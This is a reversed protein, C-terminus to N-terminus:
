AANKHVFGKFITLFIIKIDLWLSWNDIYYLDCEIRKQLDTDGRWGNIQAWGTIGAKVMHKQMYGPIEDKFQEVFMTREPRPGVISMDGKLVNIFQPLEDLSTARIFQGFRTTTKSKAGGWVVGYEENNVPMSRFKLMMFTKNNWSVREQRYFVPGPSTMKVGISIFLLIPSIMLLIIGALVKDEMGKVLRNFGNIPSMCVNIVPMGAVDSVSHNILRFGHMDPIYRITQTVNRLSHLVQQVVLEDSLSMAIWVQDVNLGNEILYSEIENFDGLLQAGSIPSDGFSGVVKYGTWPATNVRKVTSEATVGDGIIIVHFLNRGKARLYNLTIRVSFRIVLLIILGGVFWGVFFDNLMILSSDAFYYVVGLITQNLAWCYAAISLEKMKSEGRWPRYLGLTPYLWMAIVLSLALTLVLGKHPATDGLFYHFSLMFSAIIALLDSTRHLIVVLFHAEKSIGKKM